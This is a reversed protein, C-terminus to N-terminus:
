VTVHAVTDLATGHETPREEVGGTVVNLYPRTGRLTGLLDDTVYLLEPDQPGSVGEDLNRRDHGVVVLHGGPHLARAAATLLHDVQARPLHVYAVVVLDAPRELYAECETVDEVAFTVSGETRPQQAALDRAREIAVPSYDLGYAAWGQRALWLANRGEGCALDLAIGPTLGRCEREVFRNPESGWVLDTGAYRADWDTSDM